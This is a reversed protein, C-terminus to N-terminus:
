LTTTRLLSAIINNYGLKSRGTKKNAKTVKNSEGGGEGEGEGEVSEEIVNDGDDCEEGSLIDEDDAGDNTDNNDDHGTVM